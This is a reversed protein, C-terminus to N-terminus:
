VETWWLTSHVARDAKHRRGKAYAQQTLSWICPSLTLHLNPSRLTQQILISAICAQPGSNSAERTMCFSPTIVSALLGLLPSPPALHTRWGALKTLDHLKQNLSLSLRLPILPSCYLFVDSTRRQCIYACILIHVFIYVSCM